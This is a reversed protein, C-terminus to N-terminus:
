ENNYIRHFNIPPYESQIPIILSRPESDPSIRIIKIANEQLIFLWNDVIDYVCKKYVIAVTTSELSVYLDFIYDEPALNKHVEQVFAVMQSQTM